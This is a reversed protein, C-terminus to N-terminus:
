KYCDLIKELLEIIREIGVLLLGVVFFSYSMRMGEVISNYDIQGIIIQVFGIAISVLGFYYISKLLYQKM